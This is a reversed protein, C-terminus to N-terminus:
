QDQYYLKGDRQVLREPHEKGVGSQVSGDCCGINGHIPCRFLVRSPEEGSAGPALFEYSCNASTWGAWGGKAAERGTDAPCVLIKPTSMENTMQLLNSPFRDGNDLSWVKCALGLQKLNNVCQINVARERAKAKADAEEQTLTGPLPAALQARLKENEGRMQELRAVEGSIQAVMGKLRAIEEQETEAAAAPVAGRTKDSSESPASEAPPSSQALTGISQELDRIEAQQATYALACAVSIGAPALAPWWRRFWGGAGNPERRFAGQGPLIQTDAILREKLNEPPRPRAARRLANEIEQEPTNM